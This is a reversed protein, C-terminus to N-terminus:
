LLKWLDDCGATVLQNSEPRLASQWEAPASQEVPKPKPVAGAPPQSASRTVQEILVMRGTLPNRRLVTRRTGGAAAAPPRNAVLMAPQRPSPAVIRRRAPATASQPAAALAPASAVECTDDWAQMAASLRDRLAPWQAHILGEDLTDSTPDFERQAVQLLQALNIEESREGMLRGDLVLESSENKEALLSELKRDITGDCIVV